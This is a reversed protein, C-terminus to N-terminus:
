GSAETLSWIRIPQVTKQSQVAASPRTAILRLLLDTLNAPPWRGLGHRHGRRRGRGPSFPRGAISIIPYTSNVGLFDATSCDIQADGDRVDPPMQRSIIESYGASIELVLGDMYWRVLLGYGRAVRADYRAPCDTASYVPSLNLVIGVDLNSRSSRIAKAALGHSLLLSPIGADGRRDRIGPAFHGMEHGLTATVWPENHTAFSRV